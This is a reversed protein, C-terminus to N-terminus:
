SKAAEKAPAAVITTQYSFTMKWIGDRKTWIRAAHYPKGIYPQHNAIMVINDGFEYFKAMTLPAPPPGLTGKGKSVIAIRDAKTFPKPNASNTLTFDDTTRSIWDDPNHTMGDFEIHQWSAILDKQAQSTPKYPIAKCPNQCDAETKAPPVPNPPPPATAVPVDQSVLLKWTGARKVWMRVFWGGKHQGEVSEIDGYNHSRVDHESATAAAFTPLDKLVAAREITKGQNDTWTFAPDLLKGTAAADPKALAQTLNQDATIVAQDEGEPAAVARTGPLTLVAIGALLAACAMGARLHHNKFLM